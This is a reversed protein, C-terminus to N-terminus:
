MSNCTGQERNSIVSGQRARLLIYVAQSQTAGATNIALCYYLGVDSWTVSPIILQSSFPNVVKSPLRDGARIWMYGPEPNGAASCNLILDTGEELATQGVVTVNM